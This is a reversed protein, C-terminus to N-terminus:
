EDGRLKRDEQEVHRVTDKFAGRQYWKNKLWFHNARDYYEREKKYRVGPKSESYYPMFYRNETSLGKARSDEGDVVFSQVLLLKLVTVRNDGGRKNYVLRLQGHLLYSDTIEMPYDKGLTSDYFDVDITKFGKKIGDPNEKNFFHSIGDEWLNASDDGIMGQLNCNIFGDRTYIRTDKDNVVTFDKKCLSELEVECCREIRVCTRGQEDPEDMIRPKDCRKVIDPTNHGYSFNGWNRSDFIGRALVTGECDKVTLPQKYGNQEPKVQKQAYSSLKVDHITGTHLVEVDISKKCCPCHVAKSAANINNMGPMGAYRWSM